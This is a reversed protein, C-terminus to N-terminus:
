NISLVVLGDILGSGEKEAVQASGGADDGTNGISFLNFSTEFGFSFGFTIKTLFFLIRKSFSGGLRSFVECSQLVAPVINDVTDLQNLNVSAHRFLGEGSVDTRSELGLDDKDVVLLADVNVNGAGVKGDLVVHKVHRNVLEDSLLNDSFSVESAGKQM